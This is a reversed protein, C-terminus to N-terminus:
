EINSTNQVTVTQKSVVGIFQPPFFIKRSNEIRLNPQSCYRIMLFDLIM